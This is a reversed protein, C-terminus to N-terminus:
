QLLSSSSPSSSGGSPGIIGNTGTVILGLVGGCDLGRLNGSRRGATLFGPLVLLGRVIGRLAGRFGM